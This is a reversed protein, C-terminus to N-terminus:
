KAGGSPESKVPGAAPSGARKTAKPAPDDWHLRAGFEVLGSVSDDGRASGRTAPRHLDNMQAGKVGRIASLRKLWEASALHSRSTALLETEHERQRLQRLVVGDGPEFSLAELLDLLHQLPESLSAARAANNRQEDQTRLLKAHEALPASLQMLSQEFSARYADLRAKDFAQWAALALIAACGALAAAIWERVRAQRALRANRQRYPLLNFGGLWPQVLRAGRSAASANPGAARLLLLGHMM